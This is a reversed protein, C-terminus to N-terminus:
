KPFSYDFLDISSKGLDEVIKIMKNNTYYAKYDIGAPRQSRQKHCPIPTDEISYKSRLHDICEYLNEYRVVYDLINKQNFNIFQDIELFNYGVKTYMKYRYDLYEEFTGTEAIKYLQPVKDNPSFLKLRTNESYKDHFFFSVARDWPNRV